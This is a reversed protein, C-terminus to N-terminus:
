ASNKGPITLDPHNHWNRSLFTSIAGPTRSLKNAVFKTTHGAEKLEIALAKEEETWKRNINEALKSLRMRTSPYSRDTLKASIERATFGEGRLKLILEDEQTTWRKAM